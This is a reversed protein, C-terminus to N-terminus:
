KIKNLLGPVVEYIDGLFSEDAVDFIEAESDNNVAIIYEAGKIGAIFQVSGSVGLTILLKPAVTKGSLGIQYEQDMWGKEVLTRSSVVQAGLIEALSYAIKLDEKEKFGSGVAVLIEFKTIDVDKDKLKKELVESKLIYNPMEMNLIQIESKNIEKVAEKMVKSRITAMQPRSNETLIEAMINGSYAPRIQVLNRKEDIRLSTCDATLGTKFRTAVVPAISKGKITSGILVIEPKLKNIAEYLIQSYVGESFFELIKNEYSIIKDIPYENLEEIITKNMSGIVLCYIESSLKKRLKIAEGILELSLQSIKEDESEVFILIGKWDKLEQNKM